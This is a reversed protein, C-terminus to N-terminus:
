IEDGTSSEPGCSGGCASGSACSGGFPAFRKSLGHLRGKASGNRQPINGHESDANDCSLVVETLPEGPEFERLLGACRVAILLFYACTAITASLRGYFLSWVPSSDSHASASPHAGSPEELSAPLLFSTTPQATTGSWRFSSVAAVTEPPHNVHIHQMLAHFSDRSLASAGTTLPAPIVTVDVDSLIKVSGFAADMTAASRGRGWRSTGGGDGGGGGDNIGSSSAESMSDHWVLTASDELQGGGDLVATGNLLVPEDAEAPSALALAVASAPIQVAFAVATEPRMTANAEPVAAAAGSTLPLPSPPGLAIPRQASATAAEDPIVHVTRVVRVPLSTNLGSGSSVPPHSPGYNAAVVVVISLWLTAAFLM